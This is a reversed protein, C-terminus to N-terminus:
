CCLSSPSRSRIAPLVASARAPSSRTPLTSLAFCLWPTGRGTLGHVPKPPQSLVSPSASTLHLHLTEGLGHKGHGPSHPLGQPWCPFSPAQQLRFLLPALTCRASLTARGEQWRQPLSPPTSPCSLVLRVTGVPSKPIPAGRHVRVGGGERDVGGRCYGRPPTAGPFWANLALQGGSAAGPVADRLNILGKEEEESPNVVWM